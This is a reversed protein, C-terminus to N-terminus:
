LVCTEYWAWEKVVADLLKDIKGEVQKRTLKFTSSLFKHLANADKVRTDLEDKSVEGGADGSARARVVIDMAMMNFVSRLHHVSTPESAAEQALAEIHIQM